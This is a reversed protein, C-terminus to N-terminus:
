NNLTLLTLWGLFIAVTFPISHFKKIEDSKKTVLKGINKLLLIAEKDMIVRIVGLIAGWFFSYLIMWFILDVQTTFSFVMLLKMDGAGLAKTTVLPLCLIFAAFSAILGQVLGDMGTFYFRLALVIPLFALLLINHVKKTKLDDFVAALLLVAPVLHTLILTQNLGEM